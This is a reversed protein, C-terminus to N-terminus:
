SVDGTKMDITLVEVSCSGIKRQAEEAEVEGGYNQTRLGMLGRVVNAQARAARRFEINEDRRAIQDLLHLVGMLGAQQREGAPVIEGSPGEHPHRLRHEKGGQVEYAETV